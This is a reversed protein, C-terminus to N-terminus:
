STRPCGGRWAACNPHSGARYRASVAWLDIHAEAQACKPRWAGSVEVSVKSYMAEVYGRYLFEGICLRALRMRLFGMDVNGAEGDQRCRLLMARAASLPQVLSFYSRSKMAVAADRRIHQRHCERARWMMALNLIAFGRARIWTTEDGLLGHCWHRIRNPHINGGGSLSRAHVGDLETDSTATIAAAM